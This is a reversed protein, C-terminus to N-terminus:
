EAALINLIMELAQDVNVPKTITYGGFYNIKELYEQENHGTIFIIKLNEDIKRLETAMDFGNCKPMSVDSMVFDPKHLKYAQVGECGNFALHVAKFYRKYIRELQGLLVEDDDVLMISFESLKSIIENRDM